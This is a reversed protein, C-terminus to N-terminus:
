ILSSDASGREQPIQVFLWFILGGLCVPLGPNITLAYILHSNVGVPHQFLMSNTQIEERERRATFVTCLILDSFAWKRQIIPSKNSWRNKKQEFCSFSFRKIQAINRPRSPQPPSQFGRAERSGAHGTEVVPIVGSYCPMQLPCIYNKELEPPPKSITGQLLFGM